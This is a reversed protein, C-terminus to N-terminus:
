RRSYSRSAALDETCKPITVHFAAGGEHNEAWLRGEHALVISRSLSLGLGLGQSKTTYYPEFIKEEGGPPIGGGTDVVSIRVAFAETQCSRLTLTRANGAVREMADGANLILNILVQQLQVRDVRISPLDAGLERVVRVARARLEHNMLKLVEEILENVALTQPRFEGKKLLAHLRNIVEGARENDMVIDRLINRIEELDCRDRALFLQAAQANSLIASLPQKLEHALASSLEGVSAVRLLHAVESRHAQADMDAQKRHTIDLSIGQLRAPLGDDNLEVRGQSAIWRMQGDPLLVRYEMQYSKSQYANALTQRTMERDDPHLRKLFNDLHLRESTTFGFLARWQDSAWFEDRASERFWFGLHAAEAALTVQQESTRLSRALQTARLAEGGLEYGMAAIIGVYFLSSTLPWEVYGWFILASQISGALLFSVISGGVILALRREGRRWVALAADAVFILLALLSLQGILMWPNPVGQAISVSEGLFSIHRLSTIERYNLTQGPRFNLFLSVTRLVCVSWLLWTRGARLYLRAFGALPVIVLWASLQGWRIASSFQAPTSALMEAVECAALAAAGLAALAFLLHGWADRQRWWIFACISATTLYASATM